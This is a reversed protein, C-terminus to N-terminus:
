PAAFRVLAGAEVDFAGALVVTQTSLGREIARGQSDRLENVTCPVCRLGRDRLELRDGRRVPNRLALEVGDALRRTVRGVFTNANQLLSGEPNYAEPGPEGGSYFHTSFGRNTLRGLEAEHLPRRARLGELDGAALLDLADRYVDVVIGVYIESRTRGEIKLSVVGSDVLGELVPLACLDKADFFYTGREDGEIRNAEGPRRRDELDRYPWRCAQACSGTRADRDAWYLSLFCRGSWAICVAGHVFAEIEVEPAGGVVAGLRELTLERAVCIRSIGHTAWARAAPANTVSAQTSLHVPVSPALSRALAVVGPDAIIVADPRLQELRRLTDEIAAFDDDFPQINLAVYVRRGREHAYGLAWELEDWDFNGASSRMSLRKLGLYVADAGFHFATELKSPTGAPALLEPRRGIM